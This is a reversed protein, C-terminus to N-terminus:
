RERKVVKGGLALTIAKGMAKMERWSQERPKAKAKTPMFDAPSFPQHRKKPDRHINALVSCVMAHGLMEREFRAEARKLLLDYQRLTM